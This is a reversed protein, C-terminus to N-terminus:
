HMHSLQASAAMSFVHSVRTRAAMGASTLKKGLQEHARNITEEKKQDNEINAAAAAIIHVEDLTAGLM